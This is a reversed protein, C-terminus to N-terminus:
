KFRCTRQGYGSYCLTNVCETKVFVCDLGGHVCLVRLGTRNTRGVTSARVTWDYEDYFTSYQDGDEGYVGDLRVRVRQRIRARLVARSEGVAAWGEYVFDYVDVCDHARPLFHVRVCLRPRVVFLHVRVRLQVRVRRRVQTRRGAASACATTSARAAWYENM